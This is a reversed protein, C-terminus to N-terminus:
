HPLALGLHHALRRAGQRVADLPAGAGLALCHQAYAPDSQMREVHVRHGTGVMLWKFQIIELLLAPPRDTVPPATM